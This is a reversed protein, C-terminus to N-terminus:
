GIQRAAKREQLRQRMFAEREELGMTESRELEHDHSSEPTPITTLLGADRVVKLLIEASKIRSAGGFPLHDLEGSMGDLLTKQALQVGSLWGTRLEFLVQGHTEQLGQDARAHWANDIAWRRITSATPLAVDDGLENRLLRLTRTACRGALSSWFEYSRHAIEPDFSEFRAPAQPRLSVIALDHEQHTSM